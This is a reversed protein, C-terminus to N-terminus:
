LRKARGACDNTWSDGLLAAPTMPATFVAKDQDTNKQALDGLPPEATM